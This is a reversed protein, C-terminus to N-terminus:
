VLFFNKVLLNNALLDIYAIDFVIKLNYEFYIILDNVDM